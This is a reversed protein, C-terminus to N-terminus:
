LSQDFQIFFKIHSDDRGSNFLSGVLFEVILVRKALFVYSLGSM